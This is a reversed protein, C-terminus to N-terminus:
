VEEHVDRPEKAGYHAAGDHASHVEATIRKVMSQSVHRTPIDINTNNLAISQPWDACPLPWQYCPETHGQLCWNSSLGSTVSHFWTSM